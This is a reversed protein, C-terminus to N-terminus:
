LGGLTGTGVLRTFPLHSTRSPAVFLMHADDSYVRRWAGSKTLAANLPSWAPVLVADPSHRALIASWGPAAAYLIANHELAGPPFAAEYRSDIGIRVAPHLAWSVFAGEEFPTMVNGRFRHTRLYAVAGAPASWTQDAPRGPATPIQLKWAPSDVVKVVGGALALVGLAASAFRRRALGRLLEAFPTHSLCAPILAFWIIAYIPVFRKHQMAMWGAVLLLTVGPFIARTRVTAYVALLLTLAFIAQVEPQAHSSWLPAWEGILPREMRIARWLYVPNHIGYPTILVAVAMGVGGAWLHATGKFAADMSREGHWARVFRECTHLAYFMCGAIYGGHLNVWTVCVLLWGWVWGRHGRRDADACVLFLALFLFTFMQARVPALGPAFLALAAPAMVVVVPMAAGRRKAASFALLITAGFLLLRLAAIGALDWGSAVAVAYLVAGTGWEHHVLPSVTPTFAWVDSQPFRGTALAERFWAMAHFVDLDVDRSDGALKLSLAVIVLLFLARM